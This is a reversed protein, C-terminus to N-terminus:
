LAAHLVLFIPYFCEFVEFRRWPQQGYRAISLNKKIIGPDTDTDMQGDCETITDLHICM